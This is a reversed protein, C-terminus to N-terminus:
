KPNQKPTKEPNPTKKTNQKQNSSLVYISNITIPVLITPIRKPTKTQNKKKKTNRKELVPM